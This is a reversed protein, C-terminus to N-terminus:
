HNSPSSQVYALKQVAIAKKHHNEEKLEEKIEQLCDRIFKAEEKKHSRIGSVLDQVDKQGGWIEATAKSFAQLNSGPMVLPLGGPPPLDSLWHVEGGRRKRGSLPSWVKPCAPPCFVTCIVVGRRM